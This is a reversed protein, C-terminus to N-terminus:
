GLVAPWWIWGDMDCDGCGGVMAAVLWWGSRSCGCVVASFFFFHGVDEGMLRTKVWGGFDGDIGGVVQLDSGWWRLGAEGWYSCACYGGYFGDAM